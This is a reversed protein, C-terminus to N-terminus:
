PGVVTGVAAGVAGVAGVVGIGVAVAGVWGGKVMGVKEGDSAAAMVMWLPNEQFASRGVRSVWGSLQFRVWSPGVIRM